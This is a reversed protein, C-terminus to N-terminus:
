RFYEVFRATLGQVKSEDEEQNLWYEEFRARQAEDNVDLKVFKVFEFTPHDKLYEPIETGRWLWAGRQHLDPEDGYVGHVAFCYKRFHPDTRQLFGRVNNKTVILLKGENESKQYLVEWASWGAQDLNAWLWQFEAKLDKSALFQRKWADIDFTTPPLHEFPNKAKPPAEEDDQEKEKKPKEEKKTPGQKPQQEKKPKEEKPKQEKKQQQPHPQEVFQLQPFPKKAYRTRGFHELWQPLSTVHNHYRVLNAYPKREEEGHIFTFIGQLYSNLNIDAVTLADGVLFNSAKLYEDLVRLLWNLTESARLAQAPAIPFHGFVPLALQIFQPELETAAFDLWQQVKAKHFETTGVLPTGRVVYQLIANSETLFGEPTELVPIKGLPNKQLFEPSELQQYQLPVFELQVNALAAAVIIKNARPNGQMAYLKM